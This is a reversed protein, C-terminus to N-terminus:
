AFIIEGSAAVLRVQAVTTTSGSLHRWLPGAARSLVQAINWEAGRRGPSSKGLM